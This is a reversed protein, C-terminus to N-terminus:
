VHAAALGSGTTGAKGMSRLASRDVKGTATRPLNEMFHVQRPYAHSGVRAKVERQLEAILKSGHEPLPTGGENLRVFAAVAAGRVADPVAVVACELVEPHRLLAAEVEAPGIRYGASKIIDDNRGDFHFQGRGDVHVTDGTLLWGGRVKAKTAAPNGWYEMMCVPDESGVALQGHEGAAVPELDENLVGIRRGPYPRGVSDPSLAGLVDSHGLLINAETQGYANNVTVGLVEKAWPVLEGEVSEAGSVFSRLRLGKAPTSGTAQRLMRLVTPPFLGISVGTARMLGLIREPDFGPQRFAVVPIGYALPTLLGLLMGGGWAWDVATYAVDASRVHDFAFDLTYHGPIVRHGHLVGKSKGETGSTYLLLAPTDGFTQATPQEKASDVLESFSVHGPAKDVTVVKIQLTTALEIELDSGTCVLTRAASDLLRHRVAEDGLMTSIPTVVAGAALTGIVAVAMELSQSLRIAVRDGAVVGLGRLAGAFRAALSTLEGFTITRTEDGNVVILATDSAPHTCCDAAINYASVRPPRVDASTPDDWERLTRNVFNGLRNM